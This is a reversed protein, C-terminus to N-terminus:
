LDLERRSSANLIMFRPLAPSNQAAVLQRQLHNLSGYLIPMVTAYHRLVGIM